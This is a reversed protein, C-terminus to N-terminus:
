RYRSLSTDAVNACLIYNTVSIFVDTSSCVAHQAVYCLHEASVTVCDYPVCMFTIENAGMLLTRGKRLRKRRSECVRWLMVYLIGIGFKMGFRSLVSM